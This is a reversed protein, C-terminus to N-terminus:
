ESYGKSTENEALFICMCERCLSGGYCTSNLDEEKYGRGCDGDCLAMYKYYLNDIEKQKKWFWAAPKNMM